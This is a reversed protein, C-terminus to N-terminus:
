RRRLMFYFFHDWNNKVEAWKSCQYLSNQEHNEVFDDMLLPDTDLHFTYTM